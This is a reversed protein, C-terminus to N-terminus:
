MARYLESYFGDKELLEEHTGSEVIKGDKMAVIIDAHRITSLRHAVVISTRGQMIKDFDRSVRMETLSDISSTAEDLILMPPPNLMVRAICLLQREGASLNGEESVITEYGDPLRRIFDDASAEKAARIVEEIAADPRGYAINNRITDTKLWTDQLVMAFQKRLTGKKLDAADIDDLCIRGADVDYFRMILNILTTKGCGTPGVIAAKKGAPVLLNFDQILPKDKVYSFDVHGIDLDRCARPLEETNGEDSEPTEDLLEFVRKAGALANQFEAIVGTIENFPKAYQTTYGLFTVLLGVTINGKVVAIGGFATVAAYILANILRTSPNVLSSYFTAKMSHEQLKENIEDHTECAQGAYGFATVVKLNTLMEDTYSTLEGRSKAQKEFMDHSHKAVFRALLFSAPTLVVVILTSFPHITLMIVLTAAITLIGTFLQTSGLLVGDSIQEIDTVARSLLDGHPHSDLYSLPLEQLHSFVQVRLRKATGMSVANNVLNLIWQCAATAAIVIAMTKVVAAIGSFDVEGEGVILDVARGILVPIFLTGAVVAAALVFSLIVLALQPKLCFILRKLVSPTRKKM